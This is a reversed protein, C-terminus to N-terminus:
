ETRLSKVPNAIAAKIAQFSITLLAILVSLLGAIGFVWWPMNIRYAFDQLWNHMIWWTFPVAILFSLGVLIMFDKSLIFLVNKVSAGMVKRIGIEKTRQLINYASLGLLGFCAILIALFSFLTFVKGYLKDSKYQQDFVEDLFYYNFPDGPFYKDWITKIGAITKNMDASEIKLSYSSRTNPRLLILQPDIIKRLGEQHFNHVVGVITLTDSGGRSIKQNIAKAPSDYGLKAVATENIMASKNDTGYEKSFNRGASLKMEFAPIFDYDVGMIYLTVAGEGQANLKTVGNTWYIEKGMVSTSATMNKIGTTQLMETKFPQSIARYVSDQVSGPGDLVLTQKINAGLQQKRMYNVQQYVIMTGAILVVSTGFQIIILTKRLNLGRSSNKFLGKLVKVPQYGSIVFAPYMGSLLTGAAFIILFILWYVPRLAFAAAEERGIMQNFAPTLLTVVGFAILLSLINLMLSDLLFQIILNARLAGMVKRIGVEKAREVSRATALNIYNIWAIGLIFFGILFLFSVSKGNGNVEAEQNYNSYLHIDGLPILYVADKVNNAKNWGNNNIYRDCFAPMKSELQKLDTGPKLQLYTYFDYWGFSTEASNSTDGSLRNAESFTSYSVLYQIILHSNEPYDKFVGTVQLYNQGAFNGSRVELSQGVADDNGFYKRAMTESIIISRVNKLASAPNGKEMQVGLMSVSSPDAFYGKEEKFKVNTKDNALVTNCDILRCFDEVEPFDKKMTPGFAPYSTASQWALKGQQYADLRLRVIQRSRKAFNDYSREFSVYQFILLCCTIGIALGFINLLSYGKRKSLNRVSLKLYNTVM